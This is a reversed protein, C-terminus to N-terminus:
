LETEIYSSDGALSLPSAECKLDGNLSKLHLVDSGYGIILNQGKFPLNSEYFAVNKKIIIFYENLSGKKEYVSSGPPVKSIKCNTIHIGIKQNKYM